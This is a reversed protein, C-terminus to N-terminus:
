RGLAFPLAASAAAWLSAAAVEVAGRTKSGGSGRMAAVAMSLSISVVVRAGGGMSCAWAALFVLFFLFFAVGDAACM